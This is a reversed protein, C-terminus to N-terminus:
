KTLNDDPIENVDDASKPFQVGLYGGLAKIYATLEEVFEWKDKWIINVFNFYNDSSFHNLNINRDPILVSMREFVSVYILTGNHKATMQVGGTFFSAQARELVRRQMRKNSIVFRRCAPIKSIVLGFIGSAVVDILSVIGGNWGNITTLVLQLVLGILIMIFTWIWGADSYSSSRDTVKWAIEASTIAEAEEIAKKIKKQDESTLKM